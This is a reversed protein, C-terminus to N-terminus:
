HASPRRRDPFPALFAVRNTWDEEEHHTEWHALLARVIGGYDNSRITADDIFLVGRLAENEAAMERLLDPITRLDYTVLTLRDAAAARLLVSDPQGALAGSQWRHVSEVRIRANRTRLQEAVCGRIRAECGGPPKENM